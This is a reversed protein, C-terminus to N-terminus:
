DRWYVVTGNFVTHLGFKFLNHQFWLGNLQCPPKNPIFCGLRSRCQNWYYIYDCMSYKIKGIFRKYWSFIKNM